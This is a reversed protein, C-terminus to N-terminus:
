DLIKLTDGVDRRYSRMTPDGAINIRFMFIEEQEQEKKFILNFRDKLDRIEKEEQSSFGHDKEKLVKHFIFLSATVPQFSLGNMNAWIWIRQLVKGAEIFGRATYDKRSLLFMASSSTITNKSIKALGYGMLFKRFFRVTRPDKLLGMAARETGTLELTAIDIGDKTALAEKDDWRLEHIFDELGQEHFLRMRDMGGVVKALNELESMETLQDLSFGDAKAFALISEMQQDSLLVRDTNKRNTARLAIGEVLGCHAVQIPSKAKSVFRISAILDDEFSIAQTVEEIELAKKACILRLNELAAGFAILSGTGNYDLLSHSRVRDHFLHLIGKKDFIWIWPQINGGSPAMNAFSLIERLEESSLIYGSQLINDPLQALIRNSFASVEQYAPVIPMEQVEDIKVIEDFDVYFRGSPVNDGLLLRRGVHAVSAGGLFVASALQPWSTISQGVELLSAKMRPSLTELGTIKLGIAVRQANSLNKVSNLDVEGLLGHFIKRGPELDYREIDLMGRDSTDMMVPVGFQQGKERLLVKIDFTDCEDILLDLQGGKTFFGDVNEGTIGDRYLTIKLYPDIEAIERAAIVVKEIGLSTVGAKLRNLNSLELTDFDALRMEGCSRELAMALAISQGVSLGVIGVKKRALDAQESPTIKYYNRLTRVRVFEEEPLIHVLTNKWPYFVWNGFFDRERERFFDAIGQDIQAKSLQIEPQDAKLLDSVQSDIADVTCVYNDSRLKKIEGWDNQINPNFILPQAQDQHDARTETRM